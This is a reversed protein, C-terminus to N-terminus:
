STGGRALVLAVNSGGFGFSNSLMAVRGTCNPLRTGVDALALTPISPDVEGDWLHPPLRRDPNYKPNLTLWLFAAECAAAAGLAHGTMAKTSSCPTDAGFLAHVAKGEMSDNLATGTGHLNVYAIEAPALGADDLAARMVMLAGRAEPDPASIHYADSNEGVGLLQVAAPEHTLLFVAAAEGINIGDRNRSFPRCLGGSMAELAAFGGVTMRCLTDAGGVVAAEARGARMLRRACAFAKGSSSCATAVTYAPGSLGLARAVFEGLNGTEQQRYHFHVPWVGDRRVAGYAAEGEAIGSTSTGMVVAIRDRGLQHATKEVAEAIEAVAALMLRGNRSEMLELGLPVPPLSATVQGVYLTHGPILDDRPTLGRTGSFLARSVEDKGIGIPSAIGMGTISLVPRSV